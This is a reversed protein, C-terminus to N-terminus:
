RTIFGKLFYWCECIFPLPDNLKFVAEFHKKGLSKKWQSFTLVHARGDIKKNMFLAAGMDYVLNYWIAGDKDSYYEPSDYQKGLVNEVAVKILNLGSYLVSYNWAGLRTNIEMLKYQGDRDDYKFETNALGHFRVKKIFSRGLEFMEQSHELVGSTIRGAEPPFQRLKHGVSGAILDGSADSYSTLTYLKTADGPIFEQILVPFDVHGELLQKAWNLAQSKDAFKQTRHYSVVGAQAVMNQSVTTQPKVIYPAKLKDLAVDIEKLSNLEITKPYPIGNEEAIRYLYKKNYLRSMENWSMQPIYAVKRFEVEREGVLDMWDDSAFFLFPKGEAKKIIRFLFDVCNEKDNYPHPGIYGKCLKSKRSWAHLGKEVINICKYGAQHAARIQGLANTSGGLIIATIKQAM